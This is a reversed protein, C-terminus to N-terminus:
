SVFDLPDLAPSYTLGRLIAWNGLYDVTLHGTNSIRLTALEPDPVDIFDSGQVFDKIIDKGSRDSLVFTDNGSGGKLTDSGLGGDLVDGGPGGILFDRGGNGMLVDHGGRAHAKDGGGKLEIQNHAKNGFVFDDGSGTILNEIYAAKGSDKPALAFYVNGDAWIGSSLQAKQIESFSLHGGPSLDGTIGDDYNSLDITDLGGADWITSFIRNSAPAAQIKDNISMQGTSASWSYTSAGSNTSWNVGYLSQVAAIDYTMYTQSYDYYANSYGGAAAGAYSKYTMITYAMQDYPASVAGYGYNEHAHKLGIAHGIEHMITHWAYTGRLPSNYAYTDLWIDGAQVSEAPFYAWATGPQASEGLRIKASNDNGAVESFNLETYSELMEFAALAANRQTTNLSTFSATEGTSYSGYDSASTPFSFALDIDNWRQGQVLALMNSQHVGEYSSHFESISQSSAGSRESATLAITNAMSRICHECM